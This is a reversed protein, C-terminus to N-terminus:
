RKLIMWKISELSNDSVIICPRITVQLLHDPEPEILVIIILM